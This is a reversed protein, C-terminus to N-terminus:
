NGHEGGKQFTYTIQCLLVAGESSNWILNVLRGQPSWPTLVLLAKKLHPAGSMLENINIQIAKSLDTPNETLELFVGMKHKAVLDKMYEMIAMYLLNPAKTLERYSLQTTMTKTM